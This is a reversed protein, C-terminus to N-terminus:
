DNKLSVVVNTKFSKLYLFLVNIAVLVVILVLTSIFPYTSMDLTYVYDQRWTQIFYFVLPFVLIFVAPLMYFFPRFVLLLNGAFTSGMVRRIALEKRRNEIMISIIGFIGFCCLVVAIVSCIVFIILLRTERAYQNKFYDSLFYYSLQTNMGLNEWERQLVKLGAVETRVLIKNVADKEPNLKGVILPEIPNHFSVQHFDKILGIMSKTTDTAIKAEFLKLNPYKQLFMRNVIIANEDNNEYFNRGQEVPIGLLAFYDADAKIYTHVVETKKGNMEVYFIEKGADDGPVSGCLSVNKIAPYTLLKSKFVELSANRGHDGTVDIVIIGEKNFGLDHSNFYNLQRYLEITMVIFGTSVALQLFLIVKNGLSKHSILVVKNQLLKTIAIRCMHIGPMLGGLCGVLLLLLLVAGAYTLIQSMSPIYRMGQLEDVNNIATAVFAASILLSVFVTFVSEKIFEWIIKGKLVGLSRKIGVRRSKKYALVVRINTFNAVGIILLFLALGFLLYLSNANGKPTDMQLGRTFHLDSLPTAEYKVTFEVGLGHIMPNFVKENFHTLTEELNTRSRKEQLLLYTYHDTNFYSQVIEEEGEVKNADYILADFRLDSNHPLDDIVGSVAYSAEDVKIFEMVCATTGFLKLALSKTLVITNPNTLAAAANGEIFRHSFVNFVENNVAFIRNGPFIDNNHKIKGEGDIMRFSVYHDIGTYNKMLERGLLAGTAAYNDDSGGASLKMSIRYIREYNSHSKDYNTEFGLFWFILLCISVSVTLGVISILAPTSSDVIKKLRLIM